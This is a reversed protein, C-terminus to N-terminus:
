EPVDVRKYVLIVSQWRCKEARPSPKLEIYKDSELIEMVWAQKLGAEILIYDAEALWQKALVDNWLGTRLLADKDGGEFFSHLHNLQPPYM